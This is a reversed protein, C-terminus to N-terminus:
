SEEERFGKGWSGSEVVAGAGDNLWMNNLRTLGTLHNIHYKLFTKFDAGHLHETKVFWSGFLEEFYVLTDERFEYAHNLV